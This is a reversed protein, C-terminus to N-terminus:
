YPTGGYSLPNTQALMRGGWTRTGLVGDVGKDEITLNISYKGNTFFFFYVFLAPNHGNVLFGVGIIRCFAIIYIINKKLIHALGPRKKM